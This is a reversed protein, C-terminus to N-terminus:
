SRCLRGFSTTAEAGIGPWGRNVKPAPLGVLHGDPTFKRGHYLKEPEAEARYIDAVPAPLKIRQNIESATRNATYIVNGCNKDEVETTGIRAIV